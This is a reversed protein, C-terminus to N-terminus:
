SRTFTADRGFELRFAARTESPVLVADGGHSRMIERVLHLGLGCGDRDSRERCFPEFLSSRLTAAIGPGDDRVEISPWADVGISIQGRNGGYAIANGLLNALARGLAHPDGQVEIPHPPALVAADYGSNIALPAMDAVTERAVAVLDVRQRQRPALSLREVDLMQSVLQSVRVVVRQLERAAPTDGLSEVKLGIIALPTRLEHAIDAIFQKRRLLENSLRDLAGNFSRVLPLLERPADREELRRHVDDPRLTSAAAVIPRMGATILPPRPRLSAANASIGIPPLAM